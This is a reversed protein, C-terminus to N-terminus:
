AVTEPAAASRTTALTRKGNWGGTLRLHRLQAFFRGTNWGATGWLAVFAIWAVEQM